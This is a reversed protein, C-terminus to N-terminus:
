TSRGTPSTSSCSTVSAPSAAARRGPSSSSTPTADYRLGSSGSTDAPLPDEPANNDCNIQRYQLPANVVTSLNTVYGGAANKLQWKVPITRGAKGTNLVPMNEVPQFFGLFTYTSQLSFAGSSGNHKTDGAFSATLAQVGPETATYQVTCSSAAGSGALTCSAPSFSGPKSSALTVSGEPASATGLASADSVTVTCSVTAGVVVANTSCSLTTGSARKQVDHATTAASGLLNTDGAYSVSLTKPGVM